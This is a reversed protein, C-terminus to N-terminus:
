LGRRECSGFLGVCRMSDAFEAISNKTSPAITVRSARRQAHDLEDVKQPWGFVWPAIGNMRARKLDVRVEM